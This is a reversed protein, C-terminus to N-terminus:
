KPVYNCFWIQLHREYTRFHFKLIFFFFPLVSNDSTWYFNTFQQLASLDNIMNIKVSIAFSMVNENETDVKVWHFILFLM